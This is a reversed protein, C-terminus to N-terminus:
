NPKIISSIIRFDIDGLNESKQCDTLFKSIYKAQLSESSLIDLQKEFYSMRKQNKTQQDDAKNLKNLYFTSCGILEKTITDSNTNKWSKEGLIMQQAKFLIKKDQTARLKQSYYEIIKSQELQGLGLTRDDQELIKSDVNLPNAKNQKQQIGITLEIKSQAKNRYSFSKKNAFLSQDKLRIQFSDKYSEKRQISFDKKPIYISGRNQNLPSNNQLTEKIEDPATQNYIEETQLSKESQDNSQQINQQLKVLISRSQDEMNSKETTNEQAVEYEKIKKELYVVGFKSSRKQKSDGIHFFFPSSFLDFASCTSLSLMTQRM